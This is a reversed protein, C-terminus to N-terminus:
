TWNGEIWNGLYSHGPCILVNVAVSPRGWLSWESRKNAFLSCDSQVLGQAIFISQYLTEMRRSHDLMPVATNKEAEQNQQKDALSTVIWRSFSLFWQFYTVAWTPQSPLVFRSVRKLLSYSVSYCLTAVLLLCSNEGTHLWQWQWESQLEAWGASFSDGTIVSVCGWAPKLFMKM